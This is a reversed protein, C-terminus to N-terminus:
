IVTYSLGYSKAYKLAFSDSHCYVTVPSEANGFAAYGISTVSSPVTISKLKICGDFAFWGISTVSESIIVSEIFTDAFARDAISVIKYGDISAPIIINKENGVYGTVTANSGDFTYTFGVAKTGETSSQTATSPENAITNKKLREIEEILSEISSADASEAAYLVALQSELVALNQSDVAKSHNSCSCVSIVIVTILSFLACIKKM